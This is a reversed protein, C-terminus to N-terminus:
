QQKNKIFTLYDYSSLGFLGSAFTLLTGVTFEYAPHTKFFFIVILCAFLSIQGATRKTSGSGDANSFLDKIFQKM